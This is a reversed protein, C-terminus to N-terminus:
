EMEGSTAVPLTPLSPPFSNGLPDSLAEPDEGLVPGSQWCQLQDIHCRVTHDNGLIVEYSLPITVKTVRFLEQSLGIRGATLEQPLNPQATEAVVRDPYLRNFKTTLQRVWRLEASSCGTSKCIHDFTM